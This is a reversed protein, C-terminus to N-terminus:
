SSKNMGKVREEIEEDASNRVLIRWVTVNCKQGIRYLRGIAQAELTPDLSPTTLIGYKAMTLSLGAAGGLTKMPILMILMKPDSRFKEITNEIKITSSASLIVSEINLREMIKRNVLRLFSAFQSFIITKAGKDSKQINEIRYVIRDIKVGDSSCRSIDIKPLKLPSQDGTIISSSSNNNDVTDDNKYTSKNQFKLLHLDTGTSGAKSDLAHESTDHFSLTKLDRFVEELKMKTRIVTQKLSKLPKLNNNDSLAIVSQMTQLATTARRSRGENRRQGEAVGEEIADLELKKRIDLIEREVTKDEPCIMKIDSLCSLEMKQITKFTKMKNNFIKRKRQGSGDNSSNNCKNDVAFNIQLICKTRRIIQLSDRLTTLALVGSPVLNNNSNTNWLDVNNRTENQRSHFQHPNVIGNNNLHHQRQEQQIREIDRAEHAYMGRGLEVMSSCYARLCNVYKDLFITYLRKVEQLMYQEKAGDDVICNVPMKGKGQAISPHCIVQLLYMLRRNALRTNDTPAMNQRLLKRDWDLQERMYVLQQLPDMSLWDDIVKCSHLTIQDQVHIKRHRWFVREMIRTLRALGYYSGNEYPTLLTRRLIVPDRVPDFDLVEFLGILSQIRNSLPSGSSCWAHVRYLKAVLKSPVSSVSRVMQAEDLVIRWWECHLLPSQIATYNNREDERLIKYTTLVVDAKSFDEVWVGNQNFNNSASMGNYRIVKLAPAHKDFEDSWQQLITQPVVILTAKVPLEQPNFSSISTVSSVLDDQNSDDHYSRLKKKNFSADNKFMYAGDVCSQNNINPTKDGDDDDKNTITIVGSKKKLEHPIVVNKYQEEPRPRSSILAIVEVTKGLGMEDALIGGIPYVDRYINSENVNLTVIHPLTTHIYLQYPKQLLAQDSKIHNGCIISRFAYHGEEKPIHKAYEKNEVSLMWRVCRSQYPMLTSILHPIPVDMLPAHDSPRTSELLGKLTFNTPYPKVLHRHFMRGKVPINAKDEVEKSSKKTIKNNVVDDKYNCRRWPNNICDDRNVRPRYPGRTFGITFNHEAVHELLQLFGLWPKRNHSMYPDLRKVDWSLAHINGNKKGTDPDYGDVMHIAEYQHNRWISLSQKLLTLRVEIRRENKTRKRFASRDNGLPAIVDNINSSGNKISAAKIKKKIKKQTELSKKNEELPEHTASNILSLYSLIHSLLNENRFVTTISQYYLLPKVGLMSDIKEETKTTRRLSSTTIASEDLLSEFYKKEHRHCVCMLTFVVDKAYSPWLYLENETSSLAWKDKSPYLWLITKDIRVHGSDVANLLRLLDKNEQICHIGRHRIKKNFINQQNNQYTSYLPLCGTFTTSLKKSEYELQFGILSESVAIVRATTWCNLCRKLWYRVLKPSGQHQSNGVDTPEIYVDIADGIKFKKSKDFEYNTNKNVEHITIYNEANEFLVNKNPFRTRKLTIYKMGVKGPNRKINLIDKNLIRKPTSSPSEMLKDKDVDHEMKCDCDEDNKVQSKRKKETISIELASNLLNNKKSGSGGESNNTKIVNLKRKKSPPINNNQSDKDNNKEKKKEDKVVGETNITNNNDASLSKLSLMSSNLSLSTSINNTKDNHTIDNVKLSSSSSAPANYNSNSYYFSSYTQIMDKVHKIGNYSASASSNNVGSVTTLTEIPPEVVLVADNNDHIRSDLRNSVCMNKRRSVRNSSKVKIRFHIEGLPIDPLALLDRVDDNNTPPLLTKKPSKNKRTKSSIPM